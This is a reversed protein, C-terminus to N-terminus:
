CPVMRPSSRVDPPLTSEADLLIELQWILSQALLTDALFSKGGWKAVVDSGSGSQNFCMGDDAHWGFTGRDWGVLRRPSAASKMWGVSMFGEKGQNICEVEFYHVGCSPLLASSTRLNCADEDTETVDPDDLFKVVTRGTSSLSSDLFSDSRPPNFWLFHSRGSSDGQAYGMYAPRLRDAQMRRTKRRKKTQPAPPTADAVSPSRQRRVGSTQVIIPRGETHTETNTAEMGPLTTSPVPLARSTTTAQQVAAQETALRLVRRRNNAGRRLPILPAPGGMVSAWDDHDVDGAVNPHAYFSRVRRRTTLVQPLLANELEDHEDTDSSEDDPMLWTTNATDTRTGRNLQLPEAVMPPLRRRRLPIPNLGAGNSPGAQASGDDGTDEYGQQIAAAIGGQWTQRQAESEDLLQDMRAARSIAHAPDVIGEGALRRL